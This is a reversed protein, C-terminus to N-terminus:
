INLRREIKQLRKDLNVVQNDAEKFTTKSAENIKVLQYSLHLYMAVGVVSIIIPVM